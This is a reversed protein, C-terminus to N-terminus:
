LVDVEVEVKTVNFSLYLEEGCKPCKPDSQGEDTEAYYDGAAVNRYIARAAAFRYTEVHASVDVEAGCEPCWVKGM